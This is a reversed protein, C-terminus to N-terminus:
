NTSKYDRINVCRGCFACELADHSKRQWGLTTLVFSIRVSDKPDMKYKLM